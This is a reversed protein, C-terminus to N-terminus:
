ISAAFNDKFPIRGIISVWNGRIEPKLNQILHLMIARLVSRESILCGAAPPSATVVADNAIIGVSNESSGCKMENADLDIESGGCTMADHDLKIESGDCTMADHNLDIENGGCTMADHDLNIESGGCTMADHDLRIENGGCTMADHDLNIESGDFLMEGADLDDADSGAAIGDRDFGNAIGATDNAAAAPPLESGPRFPQGSFPRMASSIKLKAGATPLM